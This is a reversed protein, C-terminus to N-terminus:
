ANADHSKEKTKIFDELQTLLKDPYADLDRLDEAMAEEGMVEAYFERFDSDSLSCILKDYEDAPNTKPFPQRKM